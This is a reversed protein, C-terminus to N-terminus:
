GIVKKAWNLTYQAVEEWGKEGALFHSRNPFEIFDTRSPSHKQINYIAKSLYPTVTRDFQAATILLPQKRAKPRTWTGIMGAAQYFIRGSTPVVYADFLAPLEAAPVTNAFNKAFGARDLLHTNSWGALLPPIAALLSQPGPLAGAIPGPDLAIGAAGYGRDLLLQTILGGMSHGVILPQEGLGEIIKAYHDVLQGFTLSGLRKDVNRRLDAPNGDLYPWAPALTKYGAAEFASRFQDWSSTHMWAGTIFLVTRNPNTAESPTTMEIERKSLRDSVAIIM